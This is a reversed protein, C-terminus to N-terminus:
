VIGEELAAMAAATEAAGEPGTPLALAAPMRRGLVKKHRVGTCDEVNGLCFSCDEGSIAGTTAAGSSLTAGIDGGRDGWLGRAETCRALLEAEAMEPSFCRNRLSPGTKQPPLM